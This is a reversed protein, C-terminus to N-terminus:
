QIREIPDHFNIIIGAKEFAEELTDDSSIATCYRADIKQLTEKVQDTTRGEEGLVICIAGYVTRLIDVHAAKYGETFGVEHAKNTEAIIDDRTIGNRFFAEQRQAKTANELLSRTRSIQERAIQKRMGGLKSM